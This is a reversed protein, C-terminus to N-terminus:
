AAGETLALVRYLAPDFDFVSGTDTMLGIESGSSVAYEILTTVEALTYADPCLRVIEVREQGAPDTWTKCRLRLPTRKRRPTPTESEYDAM